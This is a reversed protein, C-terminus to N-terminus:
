GLSGLGIPKTPIHPGGAPYGLHDLSGKPHAIVAIVDPPQNRSAPQLRCFGTSRALWRLSSASLCHDSSRQGSMLFFGLLVLGGDDPYVFRSKIQQRHRHAGPSWAPLRRDQPDLQRAIMERGDTADGQIPSQEHM